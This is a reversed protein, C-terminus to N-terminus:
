TKNQNLKWEDVERERVGYVICLRIIVELSEQEYTERNKEMAYNQRKKERQARLGFLSKRSAFVTELAFHFSFCRLFPNAIISLERKPRKWRAKERRLKNIM